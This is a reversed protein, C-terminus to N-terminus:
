WYSGIELAIQLALLLWHELFHEEIEFEVKSPGKLRDNVIILADKYQWPAFLQCCIKLNESLCNKVYKYLKLSHM